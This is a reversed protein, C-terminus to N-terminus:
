FDNFLKNHKNLSPMVSLICNQNHVIIVVSFLVIHIYFNDIFGFMIADETRMLQVHSKNKTTEQIFQQIEKDTADPNIEGIEKGSYTQVSLMEEKSGGDSMKIKFNSIINTELIKNNHVM